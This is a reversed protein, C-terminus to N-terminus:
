PTCFEGIAEASPGLAPVPTGGHEVEATFVAARERAVLFAGLPILDVLEALPALLQQARASSTISYSFSKAVACSGRAPVLSFDERQLM